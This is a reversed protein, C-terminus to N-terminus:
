KAIIQKNVWGGDIVYGQISIKSFLLTYTKM